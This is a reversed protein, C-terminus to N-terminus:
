KQLDATLQVLKNQEHLLRLTEHIVLECVGKFTQYPGKLERNGAVNLVQIHNVLIFKSLKAALFQVEDEIQQGVPENTTALELLKKLNLEIFFKNEDFCTRRTLVTGPSQLDHALIATGDADRVNRITRSAYTGAAVLGLQALWPQPGISTEFNAPATGGTAIKWEHAAILGALDAGTQGGSIVKHLGGYEIHLM